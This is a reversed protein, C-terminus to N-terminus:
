QVKQRMEKAEKKAAPGRKEARSPPEPRKSEISLAPHIVDVYNM